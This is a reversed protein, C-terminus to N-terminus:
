RLRDSDRVLKEDRRIFRMALWNCIVAIGPMWLGFGYQGGEYTKVMTTAFYVASGLGGALLLSNLTGLKIQLLRDKFRTIEIVAITIAAIFLIATICYPVYTQVMSSGNAAGDRSGYYLAYLVHHQAADRLMWIPLFISAVLSLIAIVLFVTQIRQWM